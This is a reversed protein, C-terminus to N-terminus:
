SRLGRPLRARWGARGDRGPLRDWSRDREERLEQTWALAAGQATLSQFPLGRGWFGSELEEHRRNGEKTGVDGWVRARTTAEWRMGNPLSKLARRPSSPSVAGQASSNRLEKTEEM